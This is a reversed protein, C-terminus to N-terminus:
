PVKRSIQVVIQQNMKHLVSFLVGTISVPEDEVWYKSFSFQTVSCFVQSIFFTLLPIFIVEKFTLNQIMCHVYKRFYPIAIDQHHSYFSCTWINEIHLFVDKIGYSLWVKRGQLLHVTGLDTGWCFYPYDDQM